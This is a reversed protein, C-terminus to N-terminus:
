RGSAAPEPVGMFPRSFATLGVSAQHSAVVIVVLLFAFVTNTEDHGFVTNTLGFIAYCGSLLVAFAMRDRWREDRWSGAAAVVPATLLLLMAALGLLGGGVAADLFESHLHTHAPITVGEGAALRRVEPVANQPGHGLLPKQWFAKLGFTWFAARDATSPDTSQVANPVDISVILATIREPIRAKHAAFGLVLALGAAVALAAVPRPRIVPWLHVIAVVTVLPLAVLAGRTLSLFCGVLGALAAAAAFARMPASLRAFGVLSLAGTLMAVDGFPIANSMGATARDNGMVFVEIAAQICSVIAGARLGNLALDFVDVRPSQVLAGVLVTLLLYHAATGAVLLGPLPREASMSTVCVSAFYVLAAVCGYATTAPWVWSLRGILWLFGVWACGAFFLVTAVSGLALPMFALTPVFMWAARNPDDVTARMWRGVARLLAVGPLAM